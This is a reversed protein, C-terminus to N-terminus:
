LVGQTMTPITAVVPKCEAPVYTALHPVCVVKRHMGDVQKSAVERFAIEITEREGKGNGEAIRLWNKPFNSELAAGTLFLLQHTNHAKFYELVTKPAAATAHAAIADAHADHQVRVLDTMLAVVHSTLGALTASATASATGSAGGIAFYPSSPDLAPLYLIFSANGM